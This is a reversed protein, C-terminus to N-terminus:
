SAAGDHRLKRRVIVSFIYYDAMTHTLIPLLLAGGSWDAFLGMMLGYVFTLGVGSWGSPVGRFHWAGFVLAQGFNAYEWSLGATEAFAIRWFGRSTCEECFANAAALSLLEIEERFSFKSSLTKSYKSLEAHDGRSQSATSWAGLVINVTVTCCILVLGYLLATQFTLHNTRPLFELPIKGRILQWALSVVALEVVKGCGKGLPGAVM